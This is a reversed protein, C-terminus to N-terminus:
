TALGVQMQGSVMAAAWAQRQPHWLGGHSLPHSVPVSHMTLSGRSVEERPKKLHSHHSKAGRLAAALTPAFSGSVRSGDKIGGGLTIGAVVDM